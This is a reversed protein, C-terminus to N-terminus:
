PKSSDAIMLNESKLEKADVSIQKRDMEIAIKQNNQVSLTPSSCGTLL